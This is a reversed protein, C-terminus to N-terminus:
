AAISRRRRLLGIAGLWALAFGAARGGEDEDRGGVACGGSKGSGEPKASPSPETGGSSGSSASSTVTVSDTSGSGGAGSSSASPGESTSAMAVSSSASTSPMAPMWPYLACVGAIDDAEITRLSTGGAYQPYMTAGDVMSHGLGLFHGEEHTAISQTDINDGLGADDWQFGVHNFTIDADSIAGDNGWVPLTVGIISSVDGLEPPWDASRWAISNVGDQYDATADTDGGNKAKWGTCAPAAWSAFGADIRAVAIASISAPITSQNVRYEVPLSKWTPESPSFPVWASAQRPGALTAVGFLALRVLFRRM